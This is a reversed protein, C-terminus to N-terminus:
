PCVTERYCNSPSGYCDNWGPEYTRYCGAGCENCPDKAANVPPASVLVSLLVIGAIGVRVLKKLM